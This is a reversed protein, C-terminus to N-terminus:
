LVIEMRIYAATREWVKPDGCVAHLFIIYTCLLPEMRMTDDVAVVTVMVGAAAADVDGRCSRFYLDSSQLIITTTAAALLQLCSSCIIHLKIRPPSGGLLPM